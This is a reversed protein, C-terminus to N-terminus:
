RHDSDANKRQIRSELPYAYKLFVSYAANISIIFGPLGDLFGRKLLYTEVFKGLPKLLLRDLGTRKGRRVLEQAGLRAFRLNTSVQDDISNFSFHDLPQRLETVEGDVLLAEHINPESWRACRRDALRVLHNPYWGGHRIWRGMYYTKRPFYFGRAQIKGQALDQLTAQIELALEPSVVEDADINLVWDYSAQRQAYNKQQGYGPWANQFVKAGLQRAIEVTQDTSGSDVVIVENAWRVSEIARPLNKEENRAIITVSVPPRSMSIKFVSAYHGSIQSFNHVIFIATM